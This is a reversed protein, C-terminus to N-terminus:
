KLREEIKSNKSRMATNMYFGLLIALMTGGVATISFYASTLSGSTTVADISVAGGIAYPYVLFQLSFIIISLVAIFIAKNSVIAAIKKSILFLVGVLLTLVVPILMLVSVFSPSYLYYALVSLGIGAGTLPLVRNKMSRLSFFVPAVGIGIGLAGVVFLLSGPSSLWAGFSFTKQSFNVGAGSILASLIILVTIGLVLTSAAYIKFLKEKDLWKRKIIFEAFVISANRAVILILFVTLLPAFILAIPILLTPFAFDGMVVVLAAFTGTVEWIPMIYELVKSKAQKWFLLLVVAGMLETILLSAFLSFVAFYLEFIVNLLECWGTPPKKSRNRKM